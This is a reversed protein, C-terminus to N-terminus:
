ECRFDDKSRLGTVSDAMRAFRKAPTVNRVYAKGTRRIWFLSKDGKHPKIHDVQTALEIVGRDTCHRCLRNEPKNFFGKAAASWKRGYLGARSARPREIRRIPRSFDGCKKKASNPM